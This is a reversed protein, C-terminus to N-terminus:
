GRSDRDDARRAPDSSIKMPMAQCVEEADREWDELDEVTQTILYYSRLRLYFARAWEPRLNTLILGSELGSAFVKAYDMSEVQGELEELPRGHWIPVALRRLDHPPGEPPLLCDRCQCGSPKGDKREITKRYGM